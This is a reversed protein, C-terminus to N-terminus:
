RRVQRFLSVAAELASVAQDFVDEGSDDGYLDEEPEDEPEALVRETALELADIVSERSAVGRTVGDVTVLALHVNGDGDEAEQRVTSVVLEYEAEENLNDLIEDYTRSM